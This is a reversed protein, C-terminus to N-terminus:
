ENYIGFYTSALTTTIHKKQHFVIKLQVVLFMVHVKTKDKEFSFIKSLDM